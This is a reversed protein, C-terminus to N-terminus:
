RQSFEGTAPHPHTYQILNRCAMVGWWGLGGCRNEAERKGGQSITTWIHKAFMWIRRGFYGQNSKKKRKKEEKKLYIFLLSRHERVM